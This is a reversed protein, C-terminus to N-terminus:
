LWFCKGDISIKYNNLTGTRNSQSTVITILQECIYKCLLSVKVTYVKNYIEELDIGTIIFSTIIGQTSKFRLNAHVSGYCRQLVKRSPSVCSIKLNLQRTCMIEVTILLMVKIPFEIKQPNRSDQITNSTLKNQLLNNKKEPPLDLNNYWFKPRSHPVSM